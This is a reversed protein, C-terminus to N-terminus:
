IGNEMEKLIKIIRKYNDNTICVAALNKFFKTEKKLTKEIENKEINTIEENFVASVSIANKEVDKSIERTLIKSIQKKLISSTINAINSKATLWYNKNDNHYFKEKLDRIAEKIKSIHDATINLSFSNTKSKVETYWIDTGDFLLVDFGKKVSREEKNLYVSIHRYAEFIEFSKLHFLLEGIMGAKQIDEKTEIRRNLEEIAENFNIIGSEEQEKGYCITVLLEKLRKKLLENNDNCIIEEVHLNEIKKM